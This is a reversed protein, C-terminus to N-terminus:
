LKNERATLDLEYCDFGVRLAELKTKLPFKTLMINVKKFGFSECNHISKANDAKILVTVYSGGRKQIEKLREAIMKKGLGEGQFDKKVYMWGIHWWESTKKLARAMGAVEGDVFSLIIFGKIGYINKRWDVEKKQKEEETSKTTAAFMEPYEIIANLRLDRLEKWDEPNASRIKIEKKEFSNDSVDPSQPQLPKNKFPNESM